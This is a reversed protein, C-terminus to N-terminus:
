ENGCRNKKNKEPYLFNSEQIISESFRIKFNFKIINVINITSLNVQQPNDFMKIYKECESPSLLNDIEYLFEM